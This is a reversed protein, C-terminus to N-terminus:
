SNKIKLPKVNGILFYASRWTGSKSRLVPLGKYDVFENVFGNLLPSEVGTSYTSSKNNDMEVHAKISNQKDKDDKIYFTSCMPFSIILM